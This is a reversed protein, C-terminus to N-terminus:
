SYYARLGDLIGALIPARKAELLRFFAADHALSDLPPIVVGTLDVPGRIGIADEGGPMDPVFQLPVEGRPVMQMTRAFARSPNSRAEELLEVVEEWHLDADQVDPDILNIARRVGAVTIPDATTVGADELLSRNGYVPRGGVMVFRVHRETTQILNRYPDDKRDMVAVLDAQRGAELRGIRPGWAQGLADGPNSTVMECLERDSFAGDLRDRNWIDAVKLEGLVSKSGSPAWDSGLCIRVGADRAAVVDTTDRYLWLNSFPSWVIAAGVEGMAEFEERSLATSHIGVFRSHICGAAQCDEFEDRLAPDVGEALHYLFANGDAMKSAKEKLDDVGLKRVSQYVTDQGTGFTEDEINRVLWGEYPKNFKPSGQISTTGGVIAKVEVYKLLAKAAFAGLANTPHSIDGSYSSDRPWQYRTAYPESRAPAWLTRYNYALHNHLDILGPYIVGGTSIRRADEFGAPPDEARQRVDAILGDDVYVAGDEVIPREPNFTIVTGAIALRM